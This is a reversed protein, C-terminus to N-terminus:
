RAAERAARRQVEALLRRAEDAIPAPPDQAQLAELASTAEAWRGEKMWSRAEGLWAEHAWSTGPHQRRVERFYFRAADLFGMKLYLKGNDYDKKALRGEAEARLQRIEEVKPHDPYISLFRDFQNLALRTYDQDYAAGRAQKWYAIGLHYQADPVRPSDAFQNTVIVFETAASPWDSTRFFSLGLLYHAEDAKEGSPERELYGKLLQQADYNEGNEIAREGLTMQDAAPLDPRAGKLPHGCGAAGLAVAAALLLLCCRIAPRTV